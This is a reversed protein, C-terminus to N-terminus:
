FMMSLLALSMSAMAYSSHSQMSKSQRGGGWGGEPKNLHFAEGQKGTTCRPQLVVPGDQQRLELALRMHQPDFCVAGQASAASTILVSADVHQAVLSVAVQELVQQDDGMLYAWELLFGDQQARCVVILQHHKEQLSM